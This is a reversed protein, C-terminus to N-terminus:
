SGRLGGAAGQSAGAPGTVFALSTTIFALSVTVFALSAARPWCCVTSALPQWCRGPPDSHPPPLEGALLIQPHLGLSNRTSWRWGQLTLSM